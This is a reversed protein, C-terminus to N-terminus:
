ARKRAAVLYFLGGIAAAYTGADVAAFRAAQVVRTAEWLADFRAPDGGGALYYRLTEDRPWLLAGEDHWAREQAIIQAADPPFPARAVYARDSNYARVDDWQDPKLYGVLTEGLSNFGLGLAHKGKQCTVELRLADLHEDLLMGPPWVNALLNGGVNNPEACLLLGGPKLVRCMESLVRAPDAVHILLTQCTVLDASADSFPLADANGQLYRVRVGDPGGRASAQEVWTTERDVGVIEGGPALLRAVRRTWHGLGSGVDVAQRVRHLALRQGMLVLFDDNWYLDRADTLFQASHPLDDTMTSPYAFCGSFDLSYPGADNL